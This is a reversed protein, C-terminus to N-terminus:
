TTASSSSSTALREKLEPLDPDNQNHLFNTQLRVFTKGERHLALWCDYMRYHDLNSLAQNPM